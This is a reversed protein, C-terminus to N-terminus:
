DKIIPLMTVHLCVHNELLIQSNLMKIWLCYSSVSGSLRAQAEHSRLAPGLHYVEELLAVGVGALGCRRITGSGRLKHSGNEKLWLLCKRTKDDIQSPGDVTPLADRLLPNQTPYPFLSFTIRSLLVAFMTRQARQKWEQMWTTSSSRDPKRGHHVRVQLTYYVRQNELDTRIITNVVLFCALVGVQTWM